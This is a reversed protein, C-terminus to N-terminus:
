AAEAVVGNKPADALLEEAFAVDGPLRELGDLLVVEEGGVGAKARVVDFGGLPIGVEEVPDGEGPGFLRVLPQACVGPAPPTLEAVLDLGGGSDTFVEDLLALDVERVEPVGLHFRGADDRRLQLFHFISLVELVVDLVAGLDDIRNLRIGGLDLM